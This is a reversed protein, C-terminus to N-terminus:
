GGLTVDCDQYWLIADIFDQEKFSPWNNEIIFFDSYVSQIPLFGSLRRRGGWRIILEMRSINKSGITQLLDSKGDYQALDWEWGYNILFNVKLKAANFDVHKETFPLLEQPFVKSKTNGCVFISVDRDQIIDVCKICADIFAEVQPKPRRVNDMTFGYFTVEEVGHKLLLDILEVGPDIGFEYGKDKSFGSDVAYRRNGDPIVGIHKPVRKFKIM